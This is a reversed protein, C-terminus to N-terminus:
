CAYPCGKTTEWVGILRPSIGLTNKFDTRLRDVMIRIENGYRIYPSSNLTARDNFVEHPHVTGDKCVVNTLKVNIGALYDLLDTFSKEGDGYIVYDYWPSNLFFSSNKHADLEPGGAVIIIHPLKRKVERAIIELHPKNWVYVSLGLVDVKETELMTCFDNLFLEDIGIEPKFIVSLPPLWHYQSKDKSNLDYYLRLMYNVFSVFKDAQANPSTCILYECTIIKVNKM